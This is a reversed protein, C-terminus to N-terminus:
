EGDIDLNEIALLVLAYFILEERTTSFDIEFILSSISKHNKLTVEAIEDGDFFLKGLYKSFVSAFRSQELHISGIGEILIKNKGLSVYYDLNQADIKATSFPLLTYYHTKLVLKDKRFFSLSVKSTWSATRKALFIQHGTGDIAELDGYLSIKLTTM